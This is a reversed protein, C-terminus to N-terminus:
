TSGGSRSRSGRGSEASRAAVKELLISAPEDNPDQPVLEGRFAKALISQDLKPVLHSARAHEATIKDLWAFATQIIRVVENQETIPPVKLRCAKLQEINLTKRAVERTELLLGHQVDRDSLAYALWWSLVKTQNPRIRAVARAINAARPANSVVAIRGITGVVSILVDGDAIRSRAYASEIEDTITRLEDWQVLLESLDCVRVLPVGGVDIEGPQVVGYCIPAGEDTIDALAYEAWRAAQRHQRRWDKTLEGSFAKTLIAQKYKEVLRPIHDLESRARATRANLSDLKAVIRRQEALPPLPAVIKRVDELNLRPVATGLRLEDYQAIAAPSRLFHALFSSSTLRIDPRIRCSSQTINAGDLIQPTVAVKGITGVISLIIDGGKLSARRYREAIQPSTKRLEDVLIRGDSIETPRVYPVGDAVEPGPQLIGYIIAANAEVLQDLTTAIWGNTQISM